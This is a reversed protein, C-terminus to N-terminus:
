HVSRWREYPRLGGIITGIAVGIAGIGIADRRSDADDARSFGYVGVTVGMMLGYQLASRARSVGRSIEIRRLTGRPVRLTDPGAIQLWVTDSTARALTGVVRHAKPMFPDQRASDPLTIRVRAGPIPDAISQAGARAATVLAGIAVVAVALRLRKM